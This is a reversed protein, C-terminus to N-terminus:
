VLNDRLIHYRALLKAREKQAGKGKGFMKDLRDLQGKDGREDRVVVRLEAEERKQATKDPRPGSGAYKRVGNRGGKGIAM